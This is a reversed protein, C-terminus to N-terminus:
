WAAVPLVQLPLSAVPSPQADKGFLLALLANVVVASCVWVTCYVLM